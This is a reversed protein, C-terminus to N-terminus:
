LSPPFKVEFPRPPHQPAILLGLALYDHRIPFAKIKVLRLQPIICFACKHDCGESVKLFATYAPTTRHRPTAHDYLYRPIGIYVRQKKNKRHEKLIEVIRPVEGTGIFLDVEPLDRMLEGSYRQALCGSVVLTQLKGGKKLRATELITDISEEKAADIFSCTNILIIDAETPEAVMEYHDEQLLGGMVETDVLNRACGLSIISFKERM